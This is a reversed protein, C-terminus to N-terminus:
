ALALQVDLPRAGKCVLFNTHAERREKEREEKNRTNQRKMVDIIIPYRTVELDEQRTCGKM